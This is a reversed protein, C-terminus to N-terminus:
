KEGPLRINIKHSANPTALEPNAQFILGVTRWDPVRAGADIEAPPHNPDLLISFMKRKHYAQRDTKTNGIGVRAGNFDNQIKDIRKKKFNAQDWPYKDVDWTLLPGPPFEHRHLWRRTKPILDRPRATLYVVGFQESLERLTEAAGPLPPSPDEQGMMLSWNNTQCLTGDIDVILIPRGRDWIYVDASTEITESKNLPYSVRLRRTGPETFPYKISAYGEGNTDDHGIWEDDLYFNLRRDDLGKNFVAVGKFELKGALRTKDGSRCLADEVSLLYSSACGPGLIVGTLIGAMIYIWRYHKM